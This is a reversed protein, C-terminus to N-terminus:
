SISVWYISLFREALYSLIIEDVQIKFIEQFKERREPNKKLYEFRHFAFNDSEVEKTFM